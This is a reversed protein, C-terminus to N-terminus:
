VPVDTQFDAQEPTPLELYFTCGQSPATDCWIRGGHREIIRHVLALGTGVGEYDMSHHQRQFMVFLNRARDRDFGVGNDRVYVTAHGHPGSQAGVEIRPEASRRTFKVANDLLKSLVEGLLIPDAEIIPLNPDLVWEIRQGPQESRLHSVVGQVLPTLPVPGIDLPARGLRTYELLGEIMQSMRQSAAVISAQFQLVQADKQPDLVEQSLGVFQSIHRLPARIDHAISYSFVELEKNVSVLQSSQEDVQAKLGRNSQNLLDNLRKAETLDSVVCSYGQLEDRANRLATLTFRAWFRGGDGRQAWGTEEVHGHTSCRELLQALDLVSEGPLVTTLPLGISRSRSRQFLRQASDTWENFSGDLDLFAIGYEQIADSMLRFRQESAQLEATRQAVRDELEFNAHSVLDETRRRDTIDIQEIFFGEVRDDQLDPLYHIEFFGGSGDPLAREAEFCLKEGSLVKAVKPLIERLMDGAMVDSIHTGVMDDPLRGHGRAHAANSFCCVLDKDYYALRSPTRDTITQLLDLRALLHHEIEARETVDIVTTQTHLWHGQADTEPLSRFEATFFKGGRGFLRLQLVRTETAGRTARVHDILADRSSHDLIGALADFSPCNSSELRDFEGREWGLWGLLTQNIGVIDLLENLNLLGCSASEYSRLSSPETESPATHLTPRRPLDPESM